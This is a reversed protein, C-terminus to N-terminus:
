GVILYLTTSVRSGALADYAARTIKDIVLVETSQPRDTLEGQVYATTAIKTTSDNASQTTAVTGTPLTPTGTFTPSALAAKADLQTQIASTVGDVFNLETVTPLLSTIDAVTHTHSTAAKANIQTQIASTVGVLYNIQATTATVGDLKNIEGADATVGDLINLEAASSTVGDMINLETASATLDTIQSVTHTHVTPAKGALSTTVTTAFSADDGLAAALEDLTNLAGPASAILNNIATTVDADTAYTALSANILDQIETEGFPGIFEVTVLGDANTVAAGVFNLTEAAGEAVGNDQVAITTGAEPPNATLYDEVAVAIVVPDAGSFEDLQQQMDNLQQQVTIPGPAPALSTPDIQHDEILEAFTFPGGSPILFYWSTLGPLGRATIRYYNGATLNLVTEGDVLDYRIPDTTVIPDGLVITALRVLLYGEAPVPEAVGIDVVNVNITTM